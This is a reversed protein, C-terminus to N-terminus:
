GPSGPSRSSARLSPKPVCRTASSTSRSTRLRSLHDARHGVTRRWRDGAAPIRRRNRTQPRRLRRRAVRLSGRGRLRRGRHRPLAPRSAGAHGRRAGRSGTRSGISRVGGEPPEVEALYRGNTDVPPDGLWGHNRLAMAAGSLKARDVLVRAVVARSAFGGPPVSSRVFAVRQDAASDRVAYFWTPTGDARPPAVFPVRFALAQVELLSVDNGTLRDVFDSASTRTVILEAGAQFLPVTSVLVLLGILAPVVSPRPDTRRRALVVLVLLAAAAVLAVAWPLYASFDSFASPALALGAVVM